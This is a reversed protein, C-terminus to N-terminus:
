EFRFGNGKMEAVSLNLKKRKGGKKGGRPGSGDQQSIPINEFFPGSGDQQSIPINEFFPGAGKTKRRSVSSGTTSSFSVKKRKSLGYGSGSSGGDNLNSKKLMGEMQQLSSFFNLDILNPGGRFMNWLGQYNFLVGSPSSGKSIMRKLIPNQRDFLTM